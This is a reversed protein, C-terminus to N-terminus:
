SALQINNYIQYVLLLWFIEASGDLVFLELRRGGQCELWRAALSVLSTEFFFGEDVFM